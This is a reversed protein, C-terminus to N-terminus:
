FDFDIYDSEINAKQETSLEIVSDSNIVDINAATLVQDRIHNVGVIGGIEQLKVIDGENLQNNGDADLVTGTYRVTLGDATGFPPSQNLFTPLLETSHIQYSQRKTIMVTSSSSRDSNKKSGRNCSQSLGDEDSLSVKEDGSPLFGFLSLANQNQEENLLLNEPNSVIEM